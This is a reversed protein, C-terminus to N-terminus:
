EGEILQSHNLTARFGRVVGQSFNVGAQEADGETVYVTVPAQVQVQMQPAVSRGPSAKFPDRKTAIIFDDNAPRVVQGNKTIIADNVKVGKELALKKNGEAMKEYGFGPFEKEMERQFDILDQWAGKSTPNQKAVEVLELERKKYGGLTIAVPDSFFRGVKTISETFPKWEGTAIGNLVNVLTTLTDVLLQINKGASIGFNYAFDNVTSSGMFKGIAELLTGLADSFDKLSKTDFGTIVGAGFSKFVDIMGEAFTKIGELLPMVGIIVEEFATSLYIAVAAVKFTLLNIFDEIKRKGVDFPGFLTTLLMKGIKSLTEFLQKGVKWVVRFINAVVEGWKVFAARHDRVWDLMKQLLPMIQRRLPWTFNTMFIDKAIGFAQGVEPMKNLMARMSLFSAGLVAAKGVMRNMAGEFQAGMGKLAETFPKTDFTFKADKM